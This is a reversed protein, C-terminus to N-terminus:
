ISILRSYYLDTHSEDFFFETGSSNRRYADPSHEAEGLIVSQPGFSDGFCCLENQDIDVTLSDNEPNTVTLRIFDDVGFSDTGLFFEGPRSTSTMVIDPSANWAVWSTQAPDIFLSVSASSFEV